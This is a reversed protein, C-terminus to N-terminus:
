ESTALSSTAYNHENFGEKHYDKVEKSNLATAHQLFKRRRRAAEKTKYSDTKRYAAHKARRADHRIMRKAISGNVPINLSQLHRITANGKGRCAAITAGMKLVPTENRFLPKNKPAANRITRHVSEVASTTRIASNRILFDLKAAGFVEWISERLIVQVSKPLVPINRHHPLCKLYPDLGDKCVFSYSCTRHDGTLCPLISSAAKRLRGKLEIDNVGKYCRFADYSRVGKKFEGMKRLMFWHVLKKVYPKSEQAMLNNM